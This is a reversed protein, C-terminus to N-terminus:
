PTVDHRLSCFLSKLRTNLSHVSIPGMLSMLRMAQHPTAHRMCAVGAMGAVSTSMIIHVGAMGRRWVAALWRHFEYLPVGYVIM